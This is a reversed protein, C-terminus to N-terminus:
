QPNTRATWYSFTDRYQGSVEDPATRYRVIFVRRGAFAILTFHNEFIDKM